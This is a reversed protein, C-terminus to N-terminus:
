IERSRMNEGLETQLGRDKYWYQGTAIQYSRLDDTTTERDDVGILEKESFENDTLLESGKTM